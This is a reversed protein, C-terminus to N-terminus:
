RKADKREARPQRVQIMNTVGAFQRTGGLVVVRDGEHVFGTELLLRDGEHLMDDTSAYYDVSLPLVGHQLAMRRCIAPDPCLALVSRKSRM